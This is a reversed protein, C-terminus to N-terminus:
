KKRLMQMAMKLSIKMRNFSDALVKIEDNTSVVFEQDFKGTSIAEATHGLRQIPKIIGSVIVRDIILFTVIYILTYFCGFLLLARTANRVAVETPVYVILSAIVENDEWGFAATNGYLNVVEWPADEPRGHCQLCSTESIVPKAIYFYEKAGKKVYGSHQTMGRNTTFDSLLRTEFSDAKNPAHRPNISVHRFSYDSFEEQVREAVGRANFSTSMAERLFEHPLKAMVAPRTVKGIQRRVAEITSLYFRAKELTESDINKKLVVYSGGVMAPLSLLFILSLIIFFRKRLGMNSFM